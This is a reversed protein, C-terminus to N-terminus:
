GSIVVTLVETGAGANGSITVSGTLVRVGVEVAYGDVDFVSVTVPGTFGHTVVQSFVGTVEVVTSTSNIARADVDAIQSTLVAAVDGSDALAAAIEVLTDLAEPAGAILDSIKTDAYSKAAAEAASAVTDAHAVASAVGADAASVAADIQGALEADGAIRAASEAAVAATTTAAASSIAAEVSSEVSTVRADVASVSGELAAHAAANDAAADAIDSVLTAIAARLDDDVAASDAAVASIQAVLSAGLTQVDSTSALSNLYSGLQWGGMDVNYSVLGLETLGETLHRVMGQADVDDLVRWGSAGLGILLRSSGTEFILRGATSPGLDGGSVNEVVANLLQNGALDIPTLFRKV